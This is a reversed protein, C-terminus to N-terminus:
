PRGSSRWLLEAGYGSLRRLLDRRRQGPRVYIHEALKFAGPVIQAPGREIATFGQRIEMHPILTLDTGTAAVIETVLTTLESARALFKPSLKVDPWHAWAWDEIIYLGGPRLLPFLTEFSTRTPEYFHSADDIVLDLPGDFEERVIQMVRPVDDQSTGWYTKLQTEAGRRAVFRRFYDSDSKQKIDIGVHKKPHLCEFWFAMSGGGFIGLELLNDVRLDPHSAFFSAYQDVLKKGKYFVVCEEGLDWVDSARHQLRFVLDGLLMRDDGWELRDFFTV